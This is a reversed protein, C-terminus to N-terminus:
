LNLLERNFLLLFLILNIVFVRKAQLQDIFYFNRCVNELDLTSLRIKRQALSDLQINKSYISQTSHHVKVLHNRIVDIILSIRKSLSFDNNSITVKVYEVMKVNDWLYITLRTADLRNFSDNTLENYISSFEGLFQAIVLEIKTKNIRNQNQNLYKFVTTNINLLSKRLLEHLNVSQKGQPIL